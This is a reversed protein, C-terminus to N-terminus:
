TRRKPAASKRRRPRAVEDEQYTQTLAIAARRLAPVHALAKDMSMRAVPAHVAVSACPKGDRSLVPVAVCVLGTLYEENDTSTKDRRIRELEQELKGRDTITNETYRHLPLNDLLKARQARSLMALFLKGSATCHLPVRSGPQLNMRLPWATEVRDLYVVESGDLMTFNCTEGIDDVLRQLIAHRSGRVSSNMLIETGFHALRPGVTYRKGDPERLLLGSHALLTLIRYVTPKPLDVDTMVETLSVPRDARVIIELVAIARLTASANDQKASM